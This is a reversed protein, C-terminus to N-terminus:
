LPTKEASPCNPDRHLKVESFKMNLTDFLLLRGILNKLSFGPFIAEFYSAFGLIIAAGAVIQAFLWLFGVVFGISPSIMEYAFAYAGRESDSLWNPM